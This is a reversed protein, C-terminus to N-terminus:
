KTFLIAGHLPYRLNIAFIFIELVKKHGFTNGYMHVHVIFNKYLEDCTLDQLPNYRDTPYSRSACLVGVQMYAAM